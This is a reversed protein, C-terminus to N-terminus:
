EQQQFDLPDAGRLVTVSVSRELQVGCIPCVYAGDAMRRKDKYFMSYSRVCGRCYLQWCAPCGYDQSDLGGRGCEGCIIRPTNVETILKQKGGRLRMRSMVEQYSMPGEM